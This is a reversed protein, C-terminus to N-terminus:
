FRLAEHPGHSGLIGAVSESPVILLIRRQPFM